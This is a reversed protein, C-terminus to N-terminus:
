FYPVVYSDKEEHKKRFLVLKFKKNETKVNLNETQLLVQPGRFVREKEKVSIKIQSSRSKM